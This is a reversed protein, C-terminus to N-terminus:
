STLGDLALSHEYSLSLVCDCSKVGLALPFAFNPAVEHLLEDVLLQAKGCPCLEFETNVHGQAHQETIYVSCRLKRTNEDVSLISTKASTSRNSGFRLLKQGANKRGFGALQSRDQKKAALGSQSREDSRSCRCIKGTLHLRHPTLDVDEM